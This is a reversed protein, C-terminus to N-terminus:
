SGSSTGTGGVFLVLGRKVMALEQLLPPLNLEEPTPIRNEIRRLVMGACERQMFASVRFRGLNEVHIAFNCEKDREFTRQQKENMVGDVIEKAQRISLQTKGVAHFRGGIKIIPARGSTIFLDSAKKEVMM